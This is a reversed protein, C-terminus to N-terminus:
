VTEIAQGVLVKLRAEVAYRYAPLLDDGGQRCIVQDQFECMWERLEKRAEDIVILGEGDSM